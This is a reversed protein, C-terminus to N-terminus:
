TGFWIRRPHLGQTPSTVGELPLGKAKAIEVCKPCRDSESHGVASWINDSALGCLYHPRIEEVELSEVYHVKGTKQGTPWWWPTVSQAQERLYSDSDAQGPEPLEVEWYYGQPGAQRYGRLEGDRIRRRVERQSVRLRLSAEQISLREVM